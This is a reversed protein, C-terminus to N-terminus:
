SNLFAQLLTSTKEHAQQEHGGLLALFLVATMELPDLCIFFLQITYDKEFRPIHFRVIPIDAQLERLIHLVELCAELSVSRLYCHRWSLSLLNANFSLKCLRAFSISKSINVYVYVEVSM